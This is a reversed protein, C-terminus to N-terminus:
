GVTNKYDKNWRKALSAAGVGMIAGSMSLVDRLVLSSETLMKNDCVGFVM